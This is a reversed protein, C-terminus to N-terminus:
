LGDRSKHVTRSRRSSVIRARRDGRFSDSCVNALPLQTRSVLKVGITDELVAVRGALPFRTSKRWTPSAMSKSRELPIATRCRVGHVTRVINDPMGAAHITGLSPGSVQLGYSMTPCRM